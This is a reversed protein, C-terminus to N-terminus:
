LESIQWFRFTKLFFILVTFFITIKEEIWLQGSQNLIFLICWYWLMKCFGRLISTCGTSSNEYPFTTTLHNKMLRRTCVKLFNRKWFSNSWNNLNRFLIHSWKQRRSCLLPLMYHDGDDTRRYTRRCKIILLIIQIFHLLVSWYM